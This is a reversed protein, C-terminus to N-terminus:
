VISHCRSQVSDRGSDRVRYMGVRDGVAVRVRVRVRVEVRVSASLRAGVGGTM